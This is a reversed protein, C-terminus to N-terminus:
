EIYVNHLFSVVGTDLFAKPSTGPHWPNSHRLAGLNELLTASRDALTEDTFSRGYPLTYGIENAIRSRTRLPVSELYRLVRLEQYSENFEARFLARTRRPTMGRVIWATEFMHELERRGQANIRGYRAGERQIRERQEPTLQAIYQRRGYTSVTRGPQRLTYYRRTGPIQRLLPLSSGGPTLWRPPKSRAM